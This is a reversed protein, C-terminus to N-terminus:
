KKEKRKIIKSIRKMASQIIKERERKKQLKQERRKRAEQTAKKTHEFSIRCMSTRKKLSRLALSIGYRFVAQIYEICM